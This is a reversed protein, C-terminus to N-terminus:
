PLVRAAVEDYSPVEGVPRGARVAAATDVTAQVAARFLLSGTSIRRVGLDRLQQLPLQSLLNLPVPLDHVLAAIEAPDRLGPVFIGDAGAAVYADVRTRMEDTASGQWHTDTRANVFMEPVARTISRVIEAQEAVPALGDPRGDEINIGAVGMQSLELALEVPDAGLGYEIDVTVPVPLTALRRALQRTEDLAVGAADPLGHVAAVGLSTTGLATFGHDVLALASAVDWANPLVLPEPGDHMARFVAAGAVMASTHDRGPCAHRGAGFPRDALDVTVESGDPAVRRTAAVPPDDGRLLARVADHAQVLLSIRVATQEDRVGGAATVLRDLAADAAPTPTVHPQYCAAVLAVDPVVSRPMGLEEALNAVPAGPRRLRALDVDGLMREAASRRRAHAEGEAFRPVQGRLWAVGTAAPPQVPVHHDPDELIDV